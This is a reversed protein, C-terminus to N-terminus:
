GKEGLYDIFISQMTKKQICARYYDDGITFDVWAAGEFPPYEIKLLQMGQWNPNKKIRTVAYHVWTPHDNLNVVPEDAAAAVLTITMGSM